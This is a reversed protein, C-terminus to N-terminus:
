DGFIASASSLRAMAGSKTVKVVASKVHARKMCTEHVIKAAREIMRCRASVLASSIDGSLEAYDVTDSLRDTGASTEDVELRVDVMLRQPREREDGRDGIICMVELGNLELRM